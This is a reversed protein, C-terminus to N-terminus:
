VIGKSFAWLASGIGLSLLGILGVLPLTSATKPLTAAAAVEVPEVTAVEPPAEVAEAM